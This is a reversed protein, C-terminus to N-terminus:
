IGESGSYTSEISIKNLFFIGFNNIVIQSKLEIILELHNEQPKQPTMSRRRSTNGEDQITALRKMLEIDPRLDQIAVEGKSKEDEMM